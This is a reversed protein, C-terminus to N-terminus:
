ETPAPYASLDAGLHLLVQRLTTTEPLARAAAFQERTPYDRPFLEDCWALVQGFNGPPSELVAYPSEGDRDNM